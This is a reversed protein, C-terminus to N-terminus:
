YRPQPAPGAPPREQAEQPASADAPTTGPDTGTAASRYETPHRVADRSAQEPVNTAPTFDAVDLHEETTVKYPYVANNGVKVHIESKLVYAIKGTQALNSIERLTALNKLNVTVPVDVSSFPELAYDKNSLGKGIYEDNLYFRYVGGKVEMPEPNENDIRITFIGHMELLSLYELELHSLTADPPTVPPAKPM